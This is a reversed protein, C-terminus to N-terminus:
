DIRSCKDWKCLLLVVSEYMFTEDTFLDTKNVRKALSILM